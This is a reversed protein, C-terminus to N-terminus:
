EIDFPEQTVTQGLNTVLPRVMSRAIRLEDPVVMESFADGQWLVEGSGQDRLVVNIHFVNARRVEDKRQRGGLLSDQTSSWVNMQFDVGVDTGAQLRALDPLGESFHGQIVRTEFSLTVAAQDSTARGTATLEGEFLDKIRLNLDTDDVPAVSISHEAAIPAYAVSKMVGPAGGAQALAPAPVLLLSLAWACAGFRRHRRKPGVAM